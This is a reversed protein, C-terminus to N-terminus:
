KIPILLVLEKESRYFEIIYKEPDVLNDASVKDIIFPIQGLNEMWEAIRERIYNGRPVNLEFLGPAHINDGDEIKVCALYTLENNELRSLGYFKKKKLTSLNNELLDFTQEATLPGKLSKLCMLNLESGLEYKMLIM